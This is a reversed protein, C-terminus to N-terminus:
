SECYLLELANSQATLSHLLPHIFPHIPPQTFSHPVLTVTVSVFSITALQSLDIKVQAQLKLKNIQETNFCPFVKVFDNYGCFAQKLSVTLIDFGRTM